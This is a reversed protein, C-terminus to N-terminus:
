RLVDSLDITPNLILENLIPTQKVKLLIENFSLTQGISDILIQDLFFYVELKNWNFNEITQLFQRTPPKVAADNNTGAYHWVDDMPRLEVKVDRGFHKALNVLWFFQPCYHQNLFLYQDVFWLVTNTDLEPYDRQLHQLYTNVGSIFREKPNRIFTILPQQIKDKSDQTLVKWEPRTGYQIQRYFSSSGNKMIPYLCRQSAGLQIVECRNSFIIKDIESLM